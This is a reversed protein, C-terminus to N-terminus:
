EWPICKAKALLEAMQKLFISYGRLSHPQSPSRQAVEIVLPSRPDVKQILLVLSTPNAPDGPLVLSPESGAALCSLILDHHDEWTGRGNEDNDGITASLNAKTPQQIHWIAAGRAELAATLETLFAEYLEDPYLTSQVLLEM